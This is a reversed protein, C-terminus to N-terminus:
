GQEVAEDFQCLLSVLNAADHQGDYERIAHAGVMSQRPLSGQQDIIERVRELLVFQIWMSLPMTDMGFAAKFNMQEDTPPDESWWGLSRLEAEILDALRAVRDLRSEAPMRKVPKPIVPPQMEIDLFRQCLAILRARYRDYKAGRYRQLTLEISRASPTIQDRMSRIPMRRTQVSMVMATLVAILRDRMPEQAPLLTETDKLIERLGTLLEDSSMQVTPADSEYTDGDEAPNSPKANTHKGSSGFRFEVGQNLELGRLNLLVTADRDGQEAAHALWERAKALDKEVGDGRYYALGLEYQARAHGEQAKRQLLNLRHSPKAM